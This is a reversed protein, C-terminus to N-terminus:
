QKLFGVLAEDMNPSLPILDVESLLNSWLSEEGGSTTFQMYTDIATKYDGKTACLNSMEMVPSWNGPFQAIGQRCAAIARDYANQAVYARCLKHWLWYSMPDDEIANEYARIAGEYNGKEIYNEAFYEGIILDSSRSDITSKPNVIADDRLMDRIAIFASQERKRKYFNMLEYLFEQDTPHNSVLKRWEAYSPHTSGDLLTQVIPLNLFQDFSNYM